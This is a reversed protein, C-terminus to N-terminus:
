SDPPAHPAATATRAAREVADFDPLMGIDPVYEAYTIENEPNVVFVARALVRLEDIPVGYAIGFSTDLHDSGLTLNTVSRSVCWRNQAGPLDVSVVIFEVDPLDHARKAFESAEADCVNSDLSPMSLVVRVKGASQALTIKEYRPSTISFDPAISGVSLAHGVLTFPTGDVAVANPRKAPM